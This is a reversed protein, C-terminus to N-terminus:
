GGGIFPFSSFAAFSINKEKIRKAICESNLTVAKLKDCVSVDTFILCSFYNRLDQCVSLKRNIILNKLLQYVKLRAQSTM